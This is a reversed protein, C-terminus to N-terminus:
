FQRYHENLFNSFSEKYSEGIPIDKGAIQVWGKEISDIHALSIIFSKHIRFFAYPQLQDEFKKLNQLVMLKGKLTHLSVYNGSGEIYQIDSIKVRITKYDTRVFIFDDSHPSLRQIDNVAAGPAAAQLMSRAKQIAREFRAFSFPKLLYDIVDLEYGQLAFDPYATTLIIRTDEPLHQALELGNMRTMQIDLFVLHIKPKSQRLYQLAKTPDTFSHLLELDPIKKAFEKIVGLANTEDDIAISNIM